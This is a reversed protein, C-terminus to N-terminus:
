AQSLKGHCHYSVISSANGLSTSHLFIWLAQAPTHITHFCSAHSTCALMFFCLSLLLLPMGYNRLCSLTFWQEPSGSHFAPFLRHALTIQKVFGLGSEMRLDGAPRKVVRIKLKKMWLIGLLAQLTWNALVKNSIKWNVQWSHLQESDIIIIYLHPHQARTSMPKLTLMGLDSYNTSWRHGWRKRAEQRLPSGDVNAWNGLELGQTLLELPAMMEKADEKRVEASWAWIGM